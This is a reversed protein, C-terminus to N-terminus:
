IIQFLVSRIKPLNVTQEVVPHLTCYLKCWHFSQIEDFTYNEAFDGLVLACDDPLEEKRRKLYKTQCKAVYSHSTLNDIVGVLLEIFEDVSLSQTVM